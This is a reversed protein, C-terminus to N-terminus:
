HELKILLTNLDLNNFLKNRRSSINDRLKKLACYEDSSNSLYHTIYNKIKITIIELDHWKGLKDLSTDIYKVQRKSYLGEAPFLYVCYFIIKLLKRSYHPETKFNLSAKKLKNIYREIASRSKSTIKSLPTIRMMEEIKNEVEEVEIIQYVELEKKIFESIQEKANYIHATFSPYLKNSDYDHKQLHKLVIEWERHKGLIDFLSKTLPLNINSSKDLENLLDCYARLKKIAVRINHIIDEKLGSQLVSLNEIFDKKNAKWEGLLNIGTNM